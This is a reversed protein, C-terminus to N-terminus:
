DFRSPGVGIGVIQEGGSHRPSGEVLNSESIRAFCCFEYVVITDMNECFFWPFWSIQEPIEMHCAFMEAISPRNVQITLRCM